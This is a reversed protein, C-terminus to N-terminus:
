VRGGLGPLPRVIRFHPRRAHVRRPWNTHSEPAQVYKECHGLVANWRGGSDLCRDIVLEGRVLFGLVGGIVFALVITVTQIRSSM